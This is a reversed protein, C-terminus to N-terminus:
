IPNWRKERETKGDEQYSVAWKSVVVNGIIWQCASSCGSRLYLGDRFFQNGSFQNRGTAVDNAEDWREALCNRTASRQKRNNFIREPPM